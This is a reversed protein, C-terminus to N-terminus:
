PQHISDQINACTNPPCGGNFTTLQQRLLEPNDTMAPGHTRLALHIEARMPNLLGPGLFAGTTDGIALFAGFSAAGDVGIVRGGLNVLSGQVDPNMLDAPTCPSTACRRPNNFIGWWATIATGVPLGSTHITASLGDRTRMLVTGSGPVVTHSGFVVVPLLSFIPRANGLLNSDSLDDATYPAQNLNQGTAPLARMFAAVALCGLLTLRCIIKKKTM